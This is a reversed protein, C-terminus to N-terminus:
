APVEHEARKTPHAGLRAPIALVPCPADHLLHQTVSGVIAGALPRHGHAGVVIVDAELERAKEAVLRAPGHTGRVVAFSADVGEDRLADVQRQIKARLDSEDALVSLGAARGSLKEDAHVVVLSAGPVRALKEAFALAADATASGDTAFLITRFM